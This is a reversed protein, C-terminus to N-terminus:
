RKSPGDGVITDLIIGWFTRQQPLVARALRGPTAGVLYDTVTMPCYSVQIFVDVRYHIPNIM